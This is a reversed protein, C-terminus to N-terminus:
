PSAGTRARRGRGSSALAPADLLSHLASKVAPSTRERVLEEVPRTPVNRSEWKGNADEFWFVEELGHAIALSRDEACKPVVREPWLHMAIQAWDYKGACLADWASKLERQWARHHPVLRWLPAITLAVGDNLDPQWLPAVRRVETLLVRLEEVFTEVAAIERRQSATANPGATQVLATHRREELTLKPAVIDNQVHFLSDATLRHAYLWVSYSASPTALQWLIPAKRRSKSYRKLHHEFFAKALWTRLSRDKPDLLEAAERWRADADAGFVTDFVARVAATIDRAHGPDDVLIGDEPSALPYGRPAVTLPLGDDGTLMGPSCVPLPDFPEPEDPLPREGTALRVDFRGFVVGVAWSVLEATLGAADAEAGEVDEADASEDVVGTDGDEGAEGSAGFGDSIARRDAEDIGYLEFCREDIEAQIGALMKEVRRARGTWTPARDRLAEGAVQLLAPLTFAHSTEVATDFSRTLSYSRLAFGGLDLREDDGPSKWPLYKLVGVIFEPFSYRGLTTKFLYDFTTSNLVALTSLIEEQPIFACYGRVSFISGSSLPQPAFRSARLPWTLGSRFYYNTDNTVLGPNGNLYPYRQVIRAKIEEGDARWDVLVPLDGYFPSLNGGKAFPFWRIRVETPPAGWWARLFRFDDTTALGHRVTRGESEFPQLDTFLGRLHDSVWYAFPSRPVNNFAGSAVDFRAGRESSTKRIANLLASAKDETELVRLFVTKM